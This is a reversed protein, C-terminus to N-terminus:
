RYETMSIKLIEFIRSTLEIAVKMQWGQRFGVPEIKWFQKRSTIGLLRKSQVFVPWESTKGASRDEIVSRWYNTSIDCFCALLRLITRQLHVAEDDAWLWSVFGLGPSHAPELLWSVFGLGPRSFKHYHLNHPSQAARIPFVILQPRSIYGATSRLRVLSTAKIISQYSVPTIESNGASLRSLTTM